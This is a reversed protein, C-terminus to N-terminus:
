ITVNFASLKEKTTLFLESGDQPDFTRVNILDEGHVKTLMLVIMHGDLGDKKYSLTGIALGGDVSGFTSIWERAHIAAGLAQFLRSFKNCNRYETQWPGIVQQVQYSLNLVFDACAADDEMLYNNDNIVVSLNPAPIAHRILRELEQGTLTTHQSM